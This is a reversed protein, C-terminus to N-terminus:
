PTLFKTTSALELNPAEDVFRRLLTGHGAGILVVIREDGEEALRAINAFIKLNRMYWDAVMDAGVPEETTGVQAQLLYYGHSSDFEPSNLRRFIEAVSEKMLENGEEQATAMGELLRRSIKPHNADAFRMVETMALDQRHDIAWIEDLESKDALPFAVQHIENRVDSTGKRLYAAYDQDLAEQRAPTREVAIHTPEFRALLQVLEAMEAQRKKSLVDDSEVNVLDQGPNGMHYAGVILVQPLEEADKAEQGPLAPVFAVCVLLFLRPIM